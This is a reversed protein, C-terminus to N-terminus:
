NIKLLFAKVATWYEKHEPFKEWLARSGHQGSTQPRFSMKRADQVAKYIPEWNEKESKASTIFVPIKIEAAHDSIFHNSKGFRAFYEGPSFALLANIKGPNRAAIVFVLASSYSSGWIIIRSANLSDRAYNLAAQMDQIADLYGTDKGAEEARAHTENVVGNVEDGSRQDIALCAYGMKNLKPAIERYEGRSWGAQHFLIILPAGAIPAPYFDATIQLSDKSPFEITKFDAASLGLVTVFLLVFVKQM